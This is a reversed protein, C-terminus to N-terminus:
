LHLMMHSKAIFLYLQWCAGLLGFVVLTSLEEALQDAHAEFTRM